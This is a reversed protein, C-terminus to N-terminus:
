NISVTGSKPLVKSKMTRQNHTVISESGNTHYNHGGVKFFISPWLSKPKDPWLNSKAQVTVSKTGELQQVMFAVPRRGMVM